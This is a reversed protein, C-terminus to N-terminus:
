ATGGKGRVALRLGRRVLSELKLFLGEIGRPSFLVVLLFLLSFLGANVQSVNQTYWDASLGLSDLWGNLNQQLVYPLATIVVAGLLAGLRSRIGGIYLMTILSISLTLDYSAYEALGVVYAFLCGAMATIAGSAAFAYLKWRTVDIGSIAAAVESERLARWALGVGTRELVWMVAVVILLVVVITFYLPAGISLDLSGLSLPEVQIGAPAHATQYTRALSSVIFQLALSALLLYLGRFRLGPLGSILGVLWGVVASIILTLPFAHLGTSGLMGTTFAGIAMFAAGSLAIQGASGVLLWQGMAAIAYVACSQGILQIFPDGGLGAWLALAVLLLAMVVHTPGGSRGLVAQWGGSRSTAPGGAATAGAALTATQGLVAPSAPEEQPGPQGPVAPAATRQGSEVDM